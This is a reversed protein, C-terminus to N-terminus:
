VGCDFLPGIAGGADVRVLSPCPEDASVQDIGNPPRYAQKEFDTRYMAGGVHRHIVRWRSSDDGRWVTVVWFAEDAALAAQACRWPADDHPEVAFGCDRAGSGAIKTAVPRLADQVWHRNEAPHLVLVIAMLVTLLAGMAASTGQASWLRPEGSAELDM